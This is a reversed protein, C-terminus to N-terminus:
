VPDTAAIALSATQTALLTGDAGTLQVTIQLAHATCGGLVLYGVSSSARGAPPFNLPLLLPNVVPCGAPVGTSTGIFRGQWQVRAAVPRRTCNKAKLTATSSQGPVVAPPDFGLSTIRVTGTCAAPAVPAALASGATVAGGALAAATSMTLIALRLSTGM